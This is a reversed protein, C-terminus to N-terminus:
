RLLPLNGSLKNVKKKDGCIAIGIYELDNKNSHKMKEIYEEYTKCAQALTTFDIVTLENFEESFLKNRIENLKNKDSKLIPVPFEIIGHHVNGDKDNVEKGVIHPLIKGLSIGLIASTNAIIGSPMTENIIIVCKDENMNM